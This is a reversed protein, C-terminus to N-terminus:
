YVHSPVMFNNYVGYLLEIVVVPQALSQPIKTDLPNMDSSILQITLFYTAHQVLTVINYKYRIKFYKGTLEVKVTENLNLYTIPWNAKQSIGALNISLFWDYCSMLKFLSLLM